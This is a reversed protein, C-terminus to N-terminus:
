RLVGVHVVFGEGGRLGEGVEADRVRWVRFEEAFRGLWGEFVEASRLQQAVLVVTRRRGEGNGEGEREALRCLDACTAVFPEILAENYVCDCAIVLDIHEGGDHANVHGRLARAIGEVEDVEWDLVMTEIEGGVRKRGGKGKGAGGMMTGNEAINGRLTRLVYDQDTAVYRCVRPALALAVIGAVGAGLEVVHSHSNLIDLRFLPNTPSALWTALPPSVKWLVAGTTGGGRNSRLLGPSQRISCARGAVDLHLEPADPDLIGLNQSPLPHSFLSYCEDDIDVVEDGLDSLRDSPPSEEM